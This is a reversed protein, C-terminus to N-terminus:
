YVGPQRTLMAGLTGNNLSTGFPDSMFSPREGVYAPALMPMPQQPTTPTPQPSGVPQTVQTRGPDNFGRWLSTFFSQGPFHNASGFWQGQGGGGQSQQYPSQWMPTPQQGHQPFMRQLDLM